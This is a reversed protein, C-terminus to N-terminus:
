GAANESAKGLAMWKKGLYAEIVDPSKTVVDPLGTAIVRGHDLVVFRDALRVMAHMTHEIIVVTTGGAPLGKIVELVDEVEDRGLGAFTEDMLLLKPRSALARALELLRLEKNTLGQALSDARHFMGVRRLAEDALEEAQADTAAAVYAGVVVNQRVTMRLFPRVVQFTRAVGRRCVQNPKMGILSEGRYEVAGANPTLFGNLLNFLTTKGAGNPGIIGLIENERVDFSAEDVARLGGFARSLGSVRMVVDGLPPRQATPMAAPTPTAPAARRSVFRDRVRWFIGDPALLIVLTIALGYIVGQIGPLKDALEARFYEALPILTFAGILAGWITGVGGFMSIILAQASVGAGFVSPPTVVLLVVAYFGGAMCAIAGSLVIARLKWRLTDIGAAEAAPENQKIAFLSHGFRSREVKLAVLLVLVMMALALLTYVRPDTFQMHAFPAERQMPLSVEQFGMWEFVNQLALPYALMALAFYYGRLRFTPYGIVLGLMGGLPLCLPISIWPSVHGFKALLVVCYAGAGFFAAHGFSILGSNGSLINWGLAFCAWLPILTLQLQYYSNTVNWALLAHIVVITAIIGLTRPTIREM